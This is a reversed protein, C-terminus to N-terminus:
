QQLVYVNPSTEMTNIVVAQTPSIFYIVDSVSDTSVGDASFNLGTGSSTQDVALGLLSSVDVTFNVTGNGTSTAVGSAVFSALAAPPPVGFFYNGSLAFPAAAQQEVYGAAVSPSTDMIFATSAPSANVLYLIPSNNAGAITVRGNAQVSYTIGTQNTTTKNAGSDNKDQRDLTLNGNGDSSVLGLTAVSDGATQGQGELYFVAKGSLSANSYGASSQALIEGSLLPSTSDPDTTMILAHNASVIYVVSNGSGGSTVQLTLRGVTATNVPDTSLKAAFATNTMTGGTNLDFVGPNLNGAGDATASGMEVVRPGLVTSSPGQGILQFAYPGNMSSLSFAAPQQLYMAGSGVQGGTATTYDFQILRGVTAVNQNNLSGLAFAITRVLGNSFMINATGRHDPGVGYNGGSVTLIQAGNPDNFDVVGATVNGNGDATFSGVEAHLVGGAQGFANIEFAYQGSLEGNDTTSQTGITISLPQTMTGPPNASDSLHVTFQATGTSTPTGTIATITQGTINANNVTIGLGAPLSGSSVTWTYPPTGGIAQLAAGYPIGQLGGPLSTTSISISSGAISFTDSDTSSPNGVSTATVTVCNTCTSAPANYTVSSSAGSNVANTLTGEGTAPTITWTVGQPNGHNHYTSANFVYQTGGVVSTVKNTIQVTTPNGGGGGGGGGGCAALSLAMVGTVFCITLTGVRTQM